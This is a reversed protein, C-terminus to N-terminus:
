NHYDIIVLWKRGIAEPRLPEDDLDFYECHGGDQVRSEGEYPALLAEYLAHTLPMADDEHGYEAPEDRTYPSRSTGGHARWLDDLEERHKDVLAYPRWHLVLQPFQAILAPRFTKRIAAEALCGSWRGGFGCFSDDNLLADHAERRADNSTAGDQLSVTALMSYHM